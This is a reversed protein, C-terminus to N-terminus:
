GGSRWCRRRPKPRIVPLESKDNRQDPGTNGVIWGSGRRENRCSRKSVRLPDTLSKAPETPLRLVYWNNAFPITSPPPVCLSSCGVMQSSALDPKVSYGLPPALPFFARWSSASMREPTAISSSSQLTCLCTGVNGPLTRFRALAPFSLPKKRFRSRAVIRRQISKNACWIM